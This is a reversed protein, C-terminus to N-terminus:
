GEEAEEATLDADDDDEEAELDKKAAEDAERQQLETLYDKMAESMGHPREGLVKVIDPLGITEKELLVDGLAQVKDKHDILLQKTREYQEKVVDRVAEDIKWNTEDSYPKHMADDGGMSGYGVLGINKTMGYTQVLGNAIQTVKGM